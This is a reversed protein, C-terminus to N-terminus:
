EPAIERSTAAPPEPAAIEPAEPKTFSAGLPRGDPGATLTTQTPFPLDIGHEAFAGLLAVCVAHRAGFVEDYINSRVDFQLEFDLSSDGFAVMGCRVLSCKDQAEVVAKALAPIEACVEPPTYYAVGISLVIRRRALRAMNHLEKNLLNTNSIVVEEGTVARVRTTKLGIAEVTGNTKDWQIADGRQFPRDFLISLASFLDDFIGKAALGIAIGGVGLGAVLGTVNVGLNDLILVGAVAFLVSTVLLRIIGIASGLAAHEDAGARHEIMGLIFERVWLAGQLAAAITYFTNVTRALMPPADAYGVVLRAAFLLIFWSRTASLVRGVTQPWHTLTTRRRCLYAGFHRAGLMAMVIVAGVGMGIGIQVYHGILWDASQDWLAQMQTRSVHLPAKAAM